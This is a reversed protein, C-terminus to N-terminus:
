LLPGVQESSGHKRKHGDRCRSCSGATLVFVCHLGYLLGLFGNGTQHLIGVALGDDAGRYGLNAIGGIGGDGVGVTVVAELDLRARADAYAGDAILLLSESGLAIYDIDSQVFVM